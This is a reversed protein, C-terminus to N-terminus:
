QKESRADKDFCAYGNEEIYFGCNLLKKIECEFEDNIEKALNFRKEENLSNKTREFTGFKHWTDCVKELLCNVYKQYEELSHSYYLNKKSYLEYMEERSKM